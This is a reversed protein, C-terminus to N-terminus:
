GDLVSGYAWVDDYDDTVVTTSDTKCTFHKSRQRATMMHHQQKPQFSIRKIKM